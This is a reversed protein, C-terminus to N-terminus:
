TLSALRRLPNLSMGVYERPMKLKRCSDFANGQPYFYYCCLTWQPEGFKEIILSLAYHFNQLFTGIYSLVYVLLFALFIVKLFNCNEEVGPTNFTNARAGMAIVLYDYDMCFEEKGNLNTNQSSRCYVKKNEADIKFCEAEWFCIDVNKQGFFLPFRTM